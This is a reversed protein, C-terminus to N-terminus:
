IRYAPHLLLCLLHLFPLFAVLSLIVLRLAKMWEIAGEQCIGGEAEQCIAGEAQRGGGGEQCIAGEAERCTAGEAERCTALRAHTSIVYIVKKCEHLYM